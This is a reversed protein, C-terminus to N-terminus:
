NLLRGYFDLITETEPPVGVESHQVGGMQLVTVVLSVYRKGFCHFTAFVVCFISVLHQLFRMFVAACIPWVIAKRYVNVYVCLNWHPQM